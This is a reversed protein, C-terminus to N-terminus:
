SRYLSSDKPWVVFSPIKALGTCDISLLELEVIAYNRERPLLLTQSKWICKCATREVGLSRTDELAYIKRAKNQSSTLGVWLIRAVVAM